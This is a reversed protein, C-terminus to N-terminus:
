VIKRVRPPELATSVLSVNVKYRVLSPRPGPSRAEVSVLSLEVASFQGLCILSWM